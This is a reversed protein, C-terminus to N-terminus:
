TAHAPVGCEPCRDPTARLNYGCAPCLGLRRRRRRRIRPLARAAPWAGAVLVLLWCPASVMRDAGANGTYQWDTFDRRFPGWPTTLHPQDGLSPGQKLEWKRGPRHSATEAMGRSIFDETWRWTHAFVNIRGNWWGLSVSQWNVQDPEVSVRSRMLRAPSAYSLVWLVASAVALVLSAATAANLLLRPLRRPRGMRRPM